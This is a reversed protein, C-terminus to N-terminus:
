RIISETLRSLGTNICPYIGGGYSTTLLMNARGTISGMPFYKDDIHIVSESKGM